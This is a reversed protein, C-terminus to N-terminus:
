YRWICSACQWLHRKFCTSVTNAIVVAFLQATCTTNRRGLRFLDLSDCFNDIRLDVGGPPLSKGLLQAILLGTAQTWTYSLQGAIRIWPMILTMAAFQYVNLNTYIAMCAQNAFTMSIFTAAIPWSFNFQKYTASTLNGHHWGSVQKFLGHSRYFMITLFILRLAAGLFSGWAAGVIGMQPFGYLGFILVVSTAINVPASILFSYFALKTRGCGNFHSTLVSSLAETLMVLLFVTLYSAADLAIKETQAMMGLL